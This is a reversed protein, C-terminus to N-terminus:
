EEVKRKLMAQKKAGKPTTAQRQPVAQPPNAGKLPVIMRNGNAGVAVTGSKGDGDVLVM